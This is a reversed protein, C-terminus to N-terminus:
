LEKEINELMLEVGQAKGLQISTDLRCLSMRTRLSDHKKELRAILTQLGKLLEFPAAEPTEVPM